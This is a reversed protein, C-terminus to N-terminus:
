PLRAIVERRKKPPTQCYICFPELKLTPVLYPVASDGAPLLVNELRVAGANLGRFCSQWLLSFLMGDRLLLLHQHQDPNSNNCINAMSHLLRQMEGETLPVAVKKQYGLQNAHNSYGKLMNRIQVSLMPNGTQSIPNWDGTCGLLEFESSLHSTTSSLSGPAAIHEGETTISGAHAPLWHQTFHVMIDEPTAEQVSRNCATYNLQM